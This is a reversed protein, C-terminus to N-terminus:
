LCCGGQFGNAEICTQASQVWSTFCLWPWGVQAVCAPCVLVLMRCRTCRSRMEYADYPAACLCCAGVVQDSGGAVTVREDFVFNKGVFYGGDPFAEVYRQIGGACWGCTTRGFRRDM